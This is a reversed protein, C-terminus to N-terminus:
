RLSWALSVCRPSILVLRFVSGSVEQLSAAPHVGHATTWDLSSLVAAPREAGFSALRSCLSSPWDTPIARDATGQGCREADHLLGSSVGQESGAGSQSHRQAREGPASPRGPLESPDQGIQRVVASSWTLRLDLNLSALQAGRRGHRTANVENELKFGTLTRESGHQM